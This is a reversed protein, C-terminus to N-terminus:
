FHYRLYITAPEILKLEDEEVVDKTTNFDPFNTFLQQLESKGFSYILSSEIGFSFRPHVAYRFDVVIGGGSNWQLRRTTVRDFGSDEIIDERSWGGAYQLGCKLNWHRDEFLKRTFALTGSIAKTTNVETDTFGEHETDSKNYGPRFGLQLAYKPWAYELVFAAYPKNEEESDNFFGHLIDATSIGFSWPHERKVNEEQQGFGQFSFGLLGILFLISKKM